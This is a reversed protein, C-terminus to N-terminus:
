DTWKALCDIMRCVVYDVGQIKVDSGAYDRYKVSEGVAVPMPMVSGASALRGEGVKVVKGISTKQQEAVGPALAIGASTTEEAKTATLLVRDRIPRATDVNLQDGEWAILVDDDRILQHDDGCYKIATGDYKGYLM